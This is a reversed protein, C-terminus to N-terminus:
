SSHKTMPSAYRAIPTGPTPSIGREHSPRAVAGGRGGAAIRWSPGDSAAGRVGHDAEGTRMALISSTRGDTLPTKNCPLLPIGGLRARAAGPLGRGALPHNPSQVGPRSRSPAQTPSCSSPKRHRSILENLNEPHATRATHIRQKLDANRLPGFARNSVLEHEQRDAAGQRGAAAAGGGPEHPQQLDAARSHM